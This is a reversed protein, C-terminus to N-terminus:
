NSIKSLLTESTVLKRVGHAHNEKYQNDSCWKTFSDIDLTECEKKVDWTVQFPSCDDNSYSTGTTSGTYVVSHGKNEIPKSEVFKLTGNKQLLFVQAVVRLEPNSCTTTLCANLGGGLPKAGKASVDCSTHVWHVEVTDGETIGECGNYSAHKEELRGKAPAQCAWGSHDGDEVFTSYAASKHEANRHFHVNCIDMNEISPATTFIAPNTGSLLDIDRPAQPGAGVCHNVEKAVEHGKSEHDGAYANASVILGTFLAVVFPKM